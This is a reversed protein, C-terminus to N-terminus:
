TPRLVHRVICNFTQITGVELAVDTTEPQLSIDFHAAIESFLQYILRLPRVRWLKYREGNFYPSIFLCNSQSAAIAQELSFVATALTRIGRSNLEAAAAAASGSFPLKIAFRSLPVDKEQFYGAFRECQRIIADSDNIFRPSIQM